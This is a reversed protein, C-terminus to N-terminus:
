RYHAWAWKNWCWVTGFLSKSTTREVVNTTAKRGHNQPQPQLIAVLRYPPRSLRLRSDEELKRKSRQKEAKFAKEVSTMCYCFLSRCYHSANYFKQRKYIKLAVCAFACAELHQKKQRHIEPKQQTAVVVTRNM